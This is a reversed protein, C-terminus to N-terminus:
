GERLGAYLRNLLGLLHEIEAVTWQFSWFELTFDICFCLLDIEASLEGFDSITICSKRGM